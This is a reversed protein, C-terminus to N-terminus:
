EAKDPNHFPQGDGTGRRETLALHLGRRYRSTM